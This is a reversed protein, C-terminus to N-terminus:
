IDKENENNERGDFSNHVVMIEGNELMEISPLCECTTSESHPKLDNVPLIHIM